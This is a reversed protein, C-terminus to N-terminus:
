PSDGRMEQSVDAQLRSWIGGRRQWLEATQTSRRLLFLHLDGVGQAKFVVGM